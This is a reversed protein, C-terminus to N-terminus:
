TDPGCQATFGGLLRTRLLLRAYIPVCVRGHIGPWEPNSQNGKVAVEWMQNVSLSKNNSNDQIERVWSRILFTAPLNQVCRSPLQPFTNM